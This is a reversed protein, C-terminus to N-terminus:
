VPGNTSFFAKISMYPMLAVNVAFLAVSVSIDAVNDTEINFAEKSVIHKLKEKAIIREGIKIVEEAGQFKFDVAVKHYEGENGEIAKM